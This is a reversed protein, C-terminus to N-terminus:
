LHAPQPVAKMEGPMWKAAPTITTQRLTRLIEGAHNFLLSIHGDRPYFTAECNKIFQAMRKSLSPPSFVDQEGHWLYIPTQTLDSLQFGWHMDQLQCDVAMGQSGQRFSEFADAIMTDRLERNIEFVRRDSEPLRRLFHQLAREIRSPRNKFFRIATRIMRPMMCDLIEQVKPWLGSIGPKWNFRMEGPPLSSVLGVATVRQPIVHACALAFPTGGSNGLVAFHELHLGDALSRVDHPWDLVQRGPQFDSLGIGPRDVGILRVGASEAAREFLLAEVRSGPWGHFYFVPYGRLDGTELVGLKRGDPLTFVQEIFM